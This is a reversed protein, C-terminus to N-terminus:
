VARGVLDLQGAHPVDRELLAQGLAREADAVDRDKRRVGGGRRQHQVVNGLRLLDLLVDTLGDPVLALAQPDALELDVLLESGTSQGGATLLRVGEGASAIMRLTARPARWATAARSSWSMRSYTATAPKLGVSM